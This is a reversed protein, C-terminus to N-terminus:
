WGYCASVVNERMYSCFLTCLRNYSGQEQRNAVQLSLELYVSRRQNEPAELWMPPTQVQQVQNILLFLYVRGEEGEGGRQAGAALRTGSGWILNRASRLDVLYVRFYDLHSPILRPDRRIWQRMTTRDTEVPRERFGPRVQEPELHPWTCLATRGRTAEEGEPSIGAAARDPAHGVRMLPDLPHLRATDAGQGSPSRTM